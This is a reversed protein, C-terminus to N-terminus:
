RLTRSSRSGGRMRTLRASSLRQNPRSTLHFIKRLPAPCSKASKGPQASKPQKPCTLSAEAKAKQAVASLDSIRQIGTCEDHGAKHRADVDQLWSALFVHIAPVLGAMVVSPGNGAHACRCAPFGDVGSTAESMRAVAQQNARRSNEYQESDQGPSAFSKMSRYTTVLGGAADRSNGM